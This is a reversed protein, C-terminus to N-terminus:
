LSLPNVSYLLSTSKSTLIIINKAAEGRRSRTGKWWAFRNSSCESSVSNASFQPRMDTGESSCRQGSAEASSFTQGGTSSPRPVGFASEWSAMLYKLHEEEEREHLLADEHSRAREEAMQLEEAHVENWNWAWWYLIVESWNFEFGNDSMSEDSDSDIFTLDEQKWEGFGESYIPKDTGRDSGIGICLRPPRQYWGDSLM